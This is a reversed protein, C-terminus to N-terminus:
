YIYVNYLYVTGNWVIRQFCFPQYLFTLRLYALVIHEATTAGGAYNSLILIFEIELLRKRNSERMM